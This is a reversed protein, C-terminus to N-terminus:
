GATQLKIALDDHAVSLPVSALYTIGVAEVDDDFSIPPYFLKGGHLTHRVTALRYRAFQPPMMPEFQEAVAMMAIRSFVGSVFVADHETRSDIGMPLDTSEQHLGKVLAVGLILRGRIEGIPFLVRERLTYKQTYHGGPHTAIWALGKIKWMWRILLEAEDDSMGQGQEIEDFLRSAPGELDHGFVTNCDECLPFTAALAPVGRKEGWRIGSKDTGTRLILWSPFLHEKNMPVDQRECGACREKLHKLHAAM